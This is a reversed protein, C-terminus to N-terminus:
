DKIPMTKEVKVEWVLLNNSTCPVLLIQVHTHKETWSSHIGRSTYNLIISPGTDDVCEIADGVQLGSLSTVVLTSTVNIGGTAPVSSNLYAVFPVITQNKPAQDISTFAEGIDNGNMRWRLVGVESAVCTFIVATNPCVAEGSQIAMPSVTLSILGALFFTIM